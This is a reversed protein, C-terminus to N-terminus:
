GVSLEMQTADNNRLALMKSCAGGAIAYCVPPGRRGASRKAWGFYRPVGQHLPAAKVRSRSIACGYGIVMKFFGNQLFGLSVVKLRMPRSGSAISCRSQAPLRGRM